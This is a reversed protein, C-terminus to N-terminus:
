LGVVRGREELLPAWRISAKEADYGGNRRTSPNAKNRALTISLGLFIVVSGVGLKSSRGKILSDANRLGLEFDM